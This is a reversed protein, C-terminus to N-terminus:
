AGLLAVFSSSSRAPPHLTARNSPPCSGHELAVVDVEGTFLARVQQAEEVFANSRGAHEGAGADQERRVLAFGIGLDRGAQM